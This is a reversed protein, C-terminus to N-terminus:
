QPPLIKSNYSSVRSGWELLLKNCDSRDIIVEILCFGQYNKATEIAKELESETKILSSWGKGTDSNFINVLEAYRWNKITNYPGDHIASEIVYSGNNILFIIPNLNYRIMTSIEQATMQFSGYQIQIEFHCGKSLKLCMGNFWSDGSEVIIDTEETLIDNVQTFVNKVTLANETNKNEHIPAQEKIHQFIKLSADKPTIKEALTTLFENIFVNNYIQNDIEVFDPAVQIPKKPNILASFGTTTYDSFVPSAFLYRDASEIVESCGTTSVPGWYIGIFNPHVEPIFSKANPMCAVAYEAKHALM